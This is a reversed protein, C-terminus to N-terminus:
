LDRFFLACRILYMPCSSSYGNFLKNKDMYHYRSFYDYCKLFLLPYICRQACLCPCSRTTKKYFLFFKSKRIKKLVYWNNFYIPHKSLLISVWADRGSASLIVPIILVHNVLGSSLILLVYIHLPAVGPQIRM